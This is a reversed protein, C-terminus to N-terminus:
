NFFIPFIYRYTDIEWLAYLTMDAAFDYIAGDAYAMGSGDSATNWGSFAFGDRTFANLILPTPVNATQPTMTGSGCNPEFTVMTVVRIYDQKTIRSIGEANFAQLVVTYNGNENFIHQPNQVQSGATELRWVDSEYEVYDDGGMVLVGGDPLVVSTQFCRGFWGADDLQTWTEGDDASRWVDNLYGSHGFGGMVLIDGNPLVVSTHGARQTWVPTTVTVKTWNVGGDASRWIDNFFEGGLGGMVLIDGDPLVVSTHGARATWVDPSTVTVESWTGGGDASRWIDNFFESIGDYGGMVLIDGGDPLVVSTHSYRGAWGASDTLKTWNVGGDASRWVDNKASSDFGGMVLIGGM